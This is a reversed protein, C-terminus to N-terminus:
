KADIYGDGERCGIDEPINMSLNNKTQSIQGRIIVLYDSIQGWSGEAKIFISEQPKWFHVDWM